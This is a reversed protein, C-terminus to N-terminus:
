PPPVGTARRREADLFFAGRVVVRDNEEVGSLLVALGEPGQGLRVPRREVATGGRVAVLVAPGDESLLVATSPVLLAPRRRESLSLWGATGPAPATGAAPLFEAEWQGDPRHVAAGAGRRVTMPSPGLALRLEAPEGAAVAAAEEEPLLALVRGREDVWAPVSRRAALERARVSQLAGPPLGPSSAEPPESAAVPAAAVLEMGCVPCDGPAGRRVDPHMPCVFQPGPGQGGGLFAVAVGALACALLAGRLLLPWRAGSM